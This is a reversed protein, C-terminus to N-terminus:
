KSGNAVEIRGYIVDLHRLWMRAEINIQRFVEQRNVSDSVCVERITRRHAEDNLLIAQKYRENEM